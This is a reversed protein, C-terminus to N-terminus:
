SPLKRDHVDRTGKGDDQDEPTSRQKQERNRGHAPRNGLADAAPAAARQGLVHATLQIFEAGLERALYVLEAGFHALQALSHVERLPQEGLLAVSVAQRRRPSGHPVSLLNEDQEEHEATPKPHETRQSVREGLPDTALASRPGIRPTERLQPLSRFLTTYPFLTSRPPRRIM